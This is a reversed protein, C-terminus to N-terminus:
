CRLKMEEIQSTNPVGAMASLRRVPLPSLDAGASRWRRRNHPDRIFYGVLPTQAM